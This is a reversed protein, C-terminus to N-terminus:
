GKVPSVSAGAPMSSAAAPSWGKGHFAEQPPYAHMGHESIDLGVAEEETSVRLFGVAKLIAFLTLMTFFSWAPIVLSGIIQPMM